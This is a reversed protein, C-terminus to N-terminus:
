WQYETCGSTSQFNTGPDELREYCSQVAVRGPGWLRLWLYRNGWSRWFQIGAQPYEVHLQMAVTPDKFLLSPPKILITEGEGLTRVFANGGAHLLLLGPTANTTFRDLYQGLPYHWEIENDGDDGLDGGGDSDDLMDFGAKLLSMGIKIGTRVPRGSGGGGGSTTFWVGTEFWDYSVPSTAVLFHNERVDVSTGPQLPLAVLEGPGDHSFAIRGPGGAELMVLPMGVLQRNWAGKLSMQSLEVGPDQWLLVHHSFYVTDGAALKMDVTPVFKGAIQCSSQGFQIRAM